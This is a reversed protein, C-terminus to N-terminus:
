TGQLKLLVPLGTLMPLGRYSFLGLPGDRDRLVRHGSHKPFDTKLSVAPPMGLGPQGEELRSCSCLHPGLPTLFSCHLCLPSQWSGQSRSPLVWILSAQKWCV